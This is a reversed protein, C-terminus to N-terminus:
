QYFDFKQARLLSRRLREIPKEELLLLTHRLTDRDAKPHGAAIRDVEKLIRKLKKEDPSEEELFASPRVGLHTAIARISKPLINDKRCLAYYATRSVGAGRLLGGLLLGRRKCFTKLRRLSIRM